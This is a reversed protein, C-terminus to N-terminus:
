EDDRGFAIMDRWPSRDEFQMKQCIGLNGERQSIAAVIGANEGFRAMRMAMATGRQMPALFGVDIRLSPKGSVRRLRSRPPWDPAFPKGGSGALGHRWRREPARRRAKAGEFVGWSM